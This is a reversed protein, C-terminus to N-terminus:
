AAASNTPHEIVGNGAEDQKIQQVAENAARLLASTSLHDDNHKKLLYKKIAAVIEAEDKDVEPAKVASSLASRFSKDDISLGKEVATKVIAWEEGNGPVEWAGKGFDKGIRVSWNLPDNKDASLTLWGKLNTEGRAAKLANKLVTRLDDANYKASLQLFRRISTTNRHEILQEIGRVMDSLIKIGGKSRNAFASNLDNCVEVTNEDFGGKITVADVKADYAKAIIM